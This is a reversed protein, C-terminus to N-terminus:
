LLKILEPAAATPFKVLPGGLRLNVVSVPHASCSCKCGAIQAGQGAHWLINDYFFTSSVIYAARSLADLCSTSLLRIWAQLRCPDQMVQRVALQLLKWAAAAEGSRVGVGSVSWDQLCQRNVNVTGHERYCLATKLRYGGMVAFALLVQLATNHQSCAMVYVLCRTVWRHV